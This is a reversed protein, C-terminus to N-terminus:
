KQIINNVYFPNFGTKDESSLEISSDPNLNMTEPMEDDFIFIQLDEKKITKKSSSSIDKWIYLSM